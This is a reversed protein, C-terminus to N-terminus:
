LLHGPCLAAQEDTETGEAIPTAISEVISLDSGHTFRDDTLVNTTFVRETWQPDSPCASSILSARGASRPGPPSSLAQKPTCTAGSPPEPEARRRANVLRGPCPPFLSGHADTNVRTTGRGSCTDPCPAEAPACGPTAEHRHPPGGCAHTDGLCPGAWRSRLTPPAFCSSPARSAILSPLEVAPPKGPLTQCRM